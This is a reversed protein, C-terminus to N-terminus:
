GAQPPAARPLDRLVMARPSFGHNLPGVGHGTRVMAGEKLADLVFSHAAEAALRLPLGQALFAALASSLTCGAGHVNRTAVREAQMVQPEAGRELLVDFVTDGPLHGGKLLVARAGMQLLAQAAAAMDAASGVPHGLLLEAEHLNPTVLAARPFLEAVLTQVGDPEILAAGTASVMVPDVVVHPLAHRDIAAAVVRMVDASFLMGIKVAHAGIDQAVADIQAALFEPPAIHIGSVAQTNQATLGAVASMGYCGLAAFTKLDAQVGAGGGSDSTAITLVRVYEQTLDFTQM